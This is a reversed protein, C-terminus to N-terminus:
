GPALQAAQARLQKYDTKGSGLVPIQSLVVVQDLRYVGRYGDDILLRNADVLKIEQTSFLVIWRRGHDDTGEVAVTPGNESAPFRRAFSEELAPLSVM